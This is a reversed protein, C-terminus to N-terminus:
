EDMWRDCYVWMLLGEFIYIVHRTTSIGVNIKHWLVFITCAGKTVVPVYTWATGGFRLFMFPWM